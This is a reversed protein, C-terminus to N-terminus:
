PLVAEYIPEFATGAIGRAPENMLAERDKAAVPGLVIGGTFL